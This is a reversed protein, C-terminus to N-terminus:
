IKYNELIDDYTFEGSAIMYLYDTYTYADSLEWYEHVTNDLYFNILDDETIDDEVYSLLEHKIDLHNDLFDLALDKSEYEADIATSKIIAWSKYPSDPFYLPNLAAYLLYTKM